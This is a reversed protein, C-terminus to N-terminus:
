KDFLSLSARFLHMSETSKFNLKWNYDKGDRTSLLYRFFQHPLKQVPRVWEGSTDSYYIYPQNSQAFNTLARYSGATKESFVISSSQILDDMIIGTDPISHLHAHDISAGATTPIVAGHEFLVSAQGSYCHQCIFEAARRVSEYTGIDSNGFSNIHKKSVILYHGLCVPALDPTVFVYEDQYIISDREPLDMERNLSFLKNGCFYCDSNISM